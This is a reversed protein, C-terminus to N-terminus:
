YIKVQICEYREGDDDDDDDILASFYRRMHELTLLCTSYM